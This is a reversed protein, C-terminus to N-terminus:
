GQRGFGPSPRKLQLGALYLGGDKRDFVCITSGDKKSVVEAKDSEFVVRMDHDCIRGVSMLPRSVKAVQFTSQLKFTDDKVQSEFNLNVEGENDINSGSGVTYQQGNKSGLCIHILYGPM